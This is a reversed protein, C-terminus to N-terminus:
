KQTRRARSEPGFFSKRPEFIGVPGYGPIKSPIARPQNELEPNGDHARIGTLASRNGVTAARCLDLFSRVKATSRGRGPQLVYLPFREDPWDPFLEVLLGRAVLDRAGLAMVQAVGAGAVCAGLMSDVDSVLLSGSTKVPLVERGRRFEWEFARGTM